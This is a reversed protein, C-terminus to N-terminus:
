KKGMLPMEKIVDMRQLHRHMLLGVGVIKDRIMLWLLMRFLTWLSRFPIMVCGQEVAKSKLSSLSDKSRGKVLEQNVM